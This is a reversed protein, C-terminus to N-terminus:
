CSEPMTSGLTRTVVERSGDVRSEDNAFSILNSKGVDIRSLRPFRTRELRTVDACDDPRDSMIKSCSCRPVGVARVMEWKGCPGVAEKERWLTTRRWSM